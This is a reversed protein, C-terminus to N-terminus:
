WRQHLLNWQHTSSMWRLNESIETDFYIHEFYLKSVFIIEVWKKMTKKVSRKGMQKLILDRFPTEVSTVIWKAIGLTLRSSHCIKAADGADAIFTCLLYFYGWFADFIIQIKAGFNLLIGNKHVLIRINKDCKKDNHGVTCHVWFHRASTSLSTVNARLFIQAHVIPLLWWNSFGDIKILGKEAMRASFWSRIKWILHSINKCVNSIFLCLIRFHM